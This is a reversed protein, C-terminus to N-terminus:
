KRRIRVTSTASANGSSDVAYIQVVWNGLRPLALPVSWAKRTASDATLNVASWAGFARRGPAKTRFLIRTPSVNDTALGRLAVRRARTSISPSSVRLTPPTRDIAPTPGPTQASAIALKSITLNVNEPQANEWTIYMYAVDSYDGTGDVSIPDLAVYGSPAHSGTSGSWVGITEWNSDLFEISIAADPNPAMTTVFLAFRNGPVIYSSWNQPSLIPVFINDGSDVTGNVVIGTSEQSGVASFWIGSPPEASGGAVPGFAPPDSLSLLDAHEESHAPVLFTTSILGALVWLRPRNM